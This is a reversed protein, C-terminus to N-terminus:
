INQENYNITLFRIISHISSLPSSIVNSVVIFITINLIVIVVFIIIMMIILVVLVIIIIIIVEIIANITIMLILIIIIIFTPLISHNWVWGNHSKINPSNWWWWIGWTDLLLSTLVMRKLLLFPSFSPFGYCYENNNLLSIPLINLNYYGSTPNDNYPPNIMM